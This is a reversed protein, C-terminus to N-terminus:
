ADPPLSARDDQSGDGAPDKLQGILHTLVLGALAVAAYAPSTLLAFPALLGVVTGFLPAVATGFLAGTAAASIATAIMSRVWGALGPRGYHKAVFISPLVASLTVAGAMLLNSESIAARSRLSAALGLAFSSGLFSALTLCTVTGRSIRAM